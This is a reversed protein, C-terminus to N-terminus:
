RMSLIGLNPLIAHLISHAKLYYFDYVINIIWRTKLLSIADVFLHMPMDYHYYIYRLSIVVYLCM